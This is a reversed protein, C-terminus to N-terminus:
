GQGNMTEGTIIIWKREKDHTNCTVMKPRIYYGFEISILALSSMHFFIKQNLEYREDGSWIVIPFAFIRDGRCV